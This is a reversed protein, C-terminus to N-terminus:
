KLTKKIAEKLLPKEIKKVQKTYEELSMNKKSFEKQLIIGGDDLGETVFHVTAGGVSNLDNFSNEIANLGKHAPLLSPHINIANIHEIFYPTLIRMFGALITLDPNYQILKEVLLYDFEERTVLKSDITFCPISYEEAIEKGKANPNNTIAVVVELNINHMNKLIYALNSGEGSFLIAIKKM